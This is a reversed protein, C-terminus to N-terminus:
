RKATAVSTTALTRGNSLPALCTASPRGASAAQPPREVGGLLTALDRRSPRMGGLISAPMEGPQFILLAAIRNGEAQVGEHRQVLRPRDLDHQRTRRRAQALEWYWALQQRLRLLERKVKWGPIM